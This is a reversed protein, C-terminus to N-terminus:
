TQQYTGAQEKVVAGIAKGTIKTANLVTISITTSAGNISDLWQTDKLGAM